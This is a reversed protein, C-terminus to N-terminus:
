RGNLSLQSKRSVDLVDSIETDSLINIEERLVECVDLMSPRKPNDVFCSRMLACLREGWKENVKPRSGGKIVSKTFMAVNFGQYPTEVAFM